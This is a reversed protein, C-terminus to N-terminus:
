PTAEAEDGAASPTSAGAPLRQFLGSVAASPSELQHTVSQSDTAVGSFDGSILSKGDIVKESPAALPIGLNFTVSGTNEVVQRDGWKQPKLKAAIWKRTEIRLKAAQVAAISDTGAVEDSIDIMEEALTDTRDEHARAYQERFLASEGMWRYVTMPAVGTQKCWKRLSGGDTIWQCLSLGKEESYDSPRHAPLTGKGKEGEREKQKEERLTRMEQALSVAASKEALSQERLVLDRAIRSLEAKTAKLQESTIEGKTPTGDTKPM